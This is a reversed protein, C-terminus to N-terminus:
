SLTVTPVQAVMVTLFCPQLLVAAAAVMVPVMTVQRVSMSQQPTFATGAKALMAAAAQVVMGAIVKPTNEIIGLDRGIPSYVMAEKAEMGMPAALVAAAAPLLVLVVSLVMTTVDILAMAEKVTAAMAAQVFSNELVIQLPVATQVTM